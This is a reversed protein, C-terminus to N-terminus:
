FLLFNRGNLMAQVRNELTAFKKRLEEMEQPMSSTTYEFKMHMREQKCWREFSENEDPNNVHNYRLHIGQTASLDNLLALMVDNLESKEKM